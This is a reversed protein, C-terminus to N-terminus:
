INMLFSVSITNLANKANHNIIKEFCCLVCMCGDLILHSRMKSVLWLPGIIDSAFLLTSIGDFYLVRCYTVVLDDM